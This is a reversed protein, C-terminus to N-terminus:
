LFKKAPTSFLPVDLWLFNVVLLNINFSEVFRNVYFGHQTIAQKFEGLPMSVTLSKTLEEAAETGKKASEAAKKNYM